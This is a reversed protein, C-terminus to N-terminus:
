NRAAQEGAAQQRAALMLGIRGAVLIQVRRTLRAAERAGLRAANMEARLDQVLAEAESAFTGDEPAEAMREALIQLRAEFDM